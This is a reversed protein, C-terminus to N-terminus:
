VLGEITAGIDAFETGTPARGLVVLAGSMYGMAELTTGGGRSGIYLPHNGFNGTGPTTGVATTLATYEGLNDKVNATIANAGASIDFAVSIINRSQAPTSQTLYREYTTNGNVGFWVNGASASAGNEIVIFSGATSPPNNSLEVIAGYNNERNHKDWVTWVTIKDTGTFNISSSVMYDTSGEFYLAAVTTDDVPLNTGLVDEREEYTARSTGRNLMPHYIYINNGATTSNFATGNNNLPGILYVPDVRASNHTLSIEWWGDGLDVQNRTVGPGQVPWTGTSADFVNDSWGAARLLTVLMRNVNGAKVIWSYTHDGNGRDPGQTINCANGTGTGELLWAETGGDPDAQGGTVTVRTKSWITNSLTKSYLFHNTWGGVPIRAYRPKAGAVNNTFKIGYKAGLWGLVEVGVSGVPTTCATDTFLYDEHVPWVEGPEDAAFLALLSAYPDAPASSGGGTSQSLGLGLKM